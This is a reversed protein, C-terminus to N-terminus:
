SDPRSVKNQAAKLAEARQKAAEIKADREANKASKKANNALKVDCADIDKQADEARKKADEAKKGHEESEKKLDRIQKGLQNIEDVRGKIERETPVSSQQSSFEPLSKKQKFMRGLFSKEKKQSVSKSATETNQQYVMNSDKNGYTVLSM